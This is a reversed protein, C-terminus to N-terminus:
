QALGDILEQYTAKLEADTISDLHREPEKLSNAFQELIAPEQQSEVANLVERFTKTFNTNRHGAFHAFAQGALQAEQGPAERNAWTYIEILDAPDRNWPRAHGKIVENLIAEREAPELKVNETMETLVPLAENMAYQGFAEGLVQPGEEPFTERLIALYNESLGRGQNLLMGSKLISKKKEDPFDALRARVETMDHELLQGLLRIEFQGALGVSPDLSKTEFRGARKQADFWSLAAVSDQELWSGFARTLQWTVSSYPDDLRDQFYTLGGAPDKQLFVEALMSELKDKIKNSLPQEKIQILAEEIEAVSMALIKEQLKVFALIDEPMGHSHSAHVFKGIAAWDLGGDELLFKAMPDEQAGEAAQARQKTPIAEYVSIRETLVVMKEELDNIKLRQSGIWAASAALALVPPLLYLAKM